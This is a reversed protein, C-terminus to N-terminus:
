QEHLSIPLIINLENIALNYMDESLVQNGMPLNGLNKIKFMMGIVTRIATYERYKVSAHVTDDTVGLIDMRTYIDEMLKNKFDIRPVDERKKQGM